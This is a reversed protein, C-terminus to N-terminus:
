YDYTLDLLGRMKNLLKKNYEPFCAKCFYINGLIIFGDYPEIWENCHHGECRDGHENITIM